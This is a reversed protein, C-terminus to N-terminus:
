AHWPTWIICKWNKILFLVSYIKNCHNSHKIKFLPCADRKLIYFSRTHLKITFIFEYVNYKLLCFFSLHSTWAHYIHLFRLFNIWLFYHSLRTESSSCLSIKSYLLLAYASSRENGVEGDGRGVLKPWIWVIIKCLVRTPQQHTAFSTAIQLVHANLCLQNVRVGVWVLLV